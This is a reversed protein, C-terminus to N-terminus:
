FAAGHRCSPTQPQDSCCPGMCRRYSRRCSRFLKACVYLSRVLLISAAGSEAQLGNTTNSETLWHPDGLITAILRRLIANERRLAACSSVNGSEGTSGLFPPELNRDQIDNRLEPPNVLGLLQPQDAFVADANLWALVILLRGADLLVREHMAARDAITRGLALM